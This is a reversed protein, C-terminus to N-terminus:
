LDICCEKCKDTFSKIANIGGYFTYMKSGVMVKLKECCFASAALAPVMTTKCFERRESLQRLTDLIKLSDM